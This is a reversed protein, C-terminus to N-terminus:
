GGGCRCRGFRTTTAFKSGGGACNCRDAGRGRGFGFTTSSVDTGSTFIASRLSSFRGGVLAGTIGLCATLVLTKEVPLEAGCVTARAGCFTCVPPKPSGLPTAALALGPLATFM